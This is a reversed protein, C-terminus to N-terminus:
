DKDSFEPYALKIAPDGYLSTGEKLILMCVRTKEFIDGTTQYEGNVREFIHISSGPVYILTLARILWARRPLCVYVEERLTLFFM